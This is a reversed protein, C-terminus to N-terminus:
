LMINFISPAAPGEPRSAAAHFRKHVEKLVADASRQSDIALVDLLSQMPYTSGFPIEAKTALRNIASSLRGPTHGIPIPSVARRTIPFAIAINMLLSTRFATPGSCTLRSPETYM